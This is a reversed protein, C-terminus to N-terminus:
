DDELLDRALMNLDEQTILSYDWVYETVSVSNSEETAYRYLACVGAFGVAAAAIGLSLPGVADYTTRALNKMGLSQKACFESGKKAMGIQSHEIAAKSGSLFDM